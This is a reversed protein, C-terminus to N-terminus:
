TRCLTESRRFYFFARGTGHYFLLCDPNALASSRQVESQKPTGGQM